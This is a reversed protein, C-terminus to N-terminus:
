AVSARDKRNISVYIGLALLEYAAILTGAVLSAAFMSVPANSKTPNVYYHEFRQAQPADQVSSATVRSLMNTHRAIFAVAIALVIGSFVRSIVRLNM